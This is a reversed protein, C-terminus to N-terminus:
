RPACPKVRVTNGEFEVGCGLVVASGPKGGAGGGHGGPPAGIVSRVFGFQNEATAGFLFWAISIIVLPMVIKMM